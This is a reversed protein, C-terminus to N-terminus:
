ESKGSPLGADRRHKAVAEVAELLRRQAQDLRRQHRKNMAESQAQFVQTQRLQVELWAVVTRQGLLRGPLDDAPVALEERFADLQRRVAERVVFSRAGFQDVLHEEVFRGLDGLHQWIVPSRDMLERIAQQADHNGGDARAALAQFEGLTLENIEPDQAPAAKDSKRKRVMRRGGLHIGVMTATMAFFGAIAKEFNVQEAAREAEADAQRCAQRLIEARAVVSAVADSQAGVYRKVVRDGVRESVYFFGARGSERREWGMANERRGGKNARKPNHSMKELPSKGM